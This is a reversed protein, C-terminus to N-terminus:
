YGAGIRLGAPHSSRVPIRTSLSKIKLHADSSRGRLDFDSMATKARGWTGGATALLNHACVRQYM